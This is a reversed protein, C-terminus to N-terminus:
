AIPIYKLAMDKKYKKILNLYIQKDEEKLIYEGNTGKCMVHYLVGKYDIRPEREM